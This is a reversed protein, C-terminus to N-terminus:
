VQTGQYDHKQFKLAGRGAFSYAILDTPATGLIYCLQNSHCLYVKLTLIHYDKALYTLM